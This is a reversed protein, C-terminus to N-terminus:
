RVDFETEVRTQADDTFRVFAVWHGPSVPRGMDLEEDIFDRPPVEQNTPDGFNGSADTGEETDVNFWGWAYVLVDQSMHLSLTMDCPNYIMPALVMPAGDCVTCAGSADRAELRFQLDAPTGTTCAATTDSDADADTDADSDADTDADTDS